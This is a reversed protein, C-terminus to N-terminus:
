AGTRAAPLVPAAAALVASAGKAATGLAAAAATAALAVASESGTRPVAGAGAEVVAALLSWVSAAAKFRPPGVAAVAAVVRPAKWSTATMVRPLGM